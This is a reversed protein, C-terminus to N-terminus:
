RNRRKRGLAVAIGGLIVLGGGAAALQEVPSGTFALSKKTATTTAPLVYRVDPSTSTADDVGPSPHYTASLLYSGAALDTDLIATGTASVPATGVLRTGESFSVTGSPVAAGASVTAVLTVHANGTENVPANYTLTTRTPVLAVIVGLTQTASTGASNRTTISLPFTGPETPTGSLTATGNNRDVFTVGGPLAGTETITPTPTGTTTVTFSGAQGVTFISSTSSTIAPVQDVNVTLTETANAGSHNDATLALPFTGADTPTGSITATGDGNDKFVLGGPLSGTESLQAQPTGTTTVTLAGAEGSILTATTPSTFTPPQDVAIQLTQTADAGNASATITVSFTGVQTPTGSLLATGNGQDTFGLGSPLAGSESLQPEPAGTATVTFSSAYGLRFTATTPSTVARASVTGEAKTDGEAPAAAKATTPSSTSAAPPDTSPTAAPRTTSAPPAVPTTTPAPTTTAPTTSAPTATSAPTTTPAPGPPRIALTLHQTAVGGADTTATVILPYTGSRTPTGSVTATGDGNDKFRIGNPLNGHEALSPIPTGTTTITFSGAQGTRLIASPASTVTPAEGVTLTLRQTVPQAEGMTNATVTLPYVGPELPTGTIDATSNGNDKFTTGPPLTGTATLTAATPGTAIVADPADSGVTLSGTAPSTFAVPQTPPSWSIAVKEPMTVNSKTGGPPVVTHAGTLLSVATKVEPLGPTATGSPTAAVLVQTARATSTELASTETRISGTAGVIVELTTDGAPVDVNGSVETAAGGAARGATSTTAPGASVATVKVLSVGAPVQFLSQGSQTYTCTTATCSDTPTAADAPPALAAILFPTALFGSAAMAATRNSIPFFRSMTEDDGAVTYM